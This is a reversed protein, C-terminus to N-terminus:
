RHGGRLTNACAAYLIAENRFWDADRAADQLRYDDRAKGKATEPPRDDQEYALQVAEYTVKEAEYRRVAAIMKIEYDRIAAARDFEHRVVPQAPITPATM